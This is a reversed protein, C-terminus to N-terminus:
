SISLLSPGTRSEGVLRKPGNLLEEEGMSTAWGLNWRRRIGNAQRAQSVCVVPLQVTVGTEWFLWRSIYLVQTQGHLRDYHERGSWSPFSLEVRALGGDRTASQQSVHSADESPSFVANGSGLLLVRSM